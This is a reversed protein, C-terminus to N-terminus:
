PVMMEVECNATAISLGQEPSFVREARSSALRTALAPQSRLPVDPKSTPMVGHAYQSVWNSATM